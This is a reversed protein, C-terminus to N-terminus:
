DRLEAVHQLFMEFVIVSSIRGVVGVFAQITTLNLCWGSLWYFVLLFTIVVVFVFPLTNGIAALFIRFTWFVRLVWFTLVVEVM